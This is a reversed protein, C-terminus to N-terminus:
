LNDLEIETGGEGGLHAALMSECGAYIIEILRCATNCVAGNDTKVAKDALCAEILAVDGWDLGHLSVKKTRDDILIRM